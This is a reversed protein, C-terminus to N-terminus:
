SVCGVRSMAEISVVGRLVASGWEGVRTREPKSVRFTAARHRWLGEESNDSESPRSLQVNTVSQRTAAYVSGAVSRFQAGVTKRGAIRVYGYGVNKDITYGWDQIASLGGSRPDELHRCATVAHANLHSRVRPQPLSGQVPDASRTAKAM